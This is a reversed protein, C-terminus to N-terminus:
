KNRSQGYMARAQEGTMGMISIEYMYQLYGGTLDSYIGMNSEIVWSGDQRILNFVTDTEAYENEYQKLTNEVINPDSGDSKTITDLVGYMDMASIHVYINATDENIETKTVNYRLSGTMKDFMLSSNASEESYLGDFYRYKDNTLDYMGEFDKEMYASIFANVVEEPESGGRDDCGWLLLLLMASLLICLMNKAMSRIKKM